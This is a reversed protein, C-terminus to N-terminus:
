SEFFSIFNQLVIIRWNFLLNKFLFFILSAWFFFLSFIYKYNLIVGGVGM